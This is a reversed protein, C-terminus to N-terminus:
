GEYVNGSLYTIRGPGEKLGNSRLIYGVYLSDGSASKIVEMDVFELNKDKYAV